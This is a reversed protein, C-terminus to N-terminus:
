RTLQVSAAFADERLWDSQFHLNLEVMVNYLWWLGYVGCSVFLAIVRGVYNHQVTKTVLRAPLAVDTGLESFIDRLEEEAGTESAEHKVLDMDLFIYGIIQAIGSAVIALVVWIAPDRFDTTMNRMVQLHGAVREFNSRLRDQVGQRNAEEWAMLNLADLMELKRRNHDRMRRMLQYFVYFGYIGCSLLTWGFATWFDFIYDSEHRAAVAASVRTAPPLQPSSEPYTSSMRALSVVAEMVPKYRSASPIM